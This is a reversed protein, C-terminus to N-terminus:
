SEAGPKTEPKSARGGGRHEESSHSVGEGTASSVPNLPNLYEQNRVFTLINSRQIDRESRAVM